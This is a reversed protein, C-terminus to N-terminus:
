DNLRIKRGVPTCRAPVTEAAAQGSVHSCASFGLCLALLAMLALGYGRCLQEVQAIFRCVPCDEGVCWHPCAAERAIYASSVLMSLVVVACVIAVFVQRRSRLGNAGFSMM